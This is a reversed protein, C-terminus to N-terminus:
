AGNITVQPMINVSDIHRTNIIKVGQGITARSKKQSEAYQKINVKHKNVLDMDNRAMAIIWAQQATLKDYMPVERGGSESLVDIEIGNGFTYNPACSITGVNRIIVDDDIVCNAIKDGVNAIHSNRGIICDVITANYIGADYISLNYASANSSRLIINGVFTVNRYHQPFFPDEVKVKEWSSCHCGHLQLTDIETPTLLRLDM